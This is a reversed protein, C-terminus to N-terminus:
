KLPKQVSGASRIPSPAKSRNSTTTKLFIKTRAFATSFCACELRKAFNRANPSRTLAQLALPKGGNKFTTACRKFRKDNGVNVLSRNLGSDNSLYKLICLNHNHIQAAWEPSSPNIAEWGPRQGPSFSFRATPAPILPRREPSKRAFHCACFSFEDSTLFSAPLSLRKFSVAVLARDEV